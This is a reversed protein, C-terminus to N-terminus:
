TRLTYTFDERADEPHSLPIPPKGIPNDLWASAVKQYYTITQKILDNAYYDTSTMFGNPDVECIVQNKANYFQYSHADKVSAPPRVENFDASRKASRVPTHYLTTKVARGGVDRLTETVWGDPDIEGIVLNDGDFYTSQWRDRTPDIVRPLPQKNKLVTLEHETLREAYHVTGILRNASDYMSEICYNEEDVAFRTRQSQDFFLYAYRTDTAQCLKLVKNYIAWIDPLDSPDAGLDITQTPRVTSQYNHTRDYITLTVLQTASISLIPNKALNWFNYLRRGDPLNTLIPWESDLYDYQTLRTQTIAGEMVTQQESILVDNENRQSVEIRTQAGNHITVTHKLGDYAHDTTAGLFDTITSIRELGDYRRSETVVNNQQLRVSHMLWNGFDDPSFREFSAHENDIGDGKEDIDAYRTISVIQGRDNYTFESLTIAQPDQAKAWDVMENISPATAASTFLNALYCRTSSVFGINDVCHETVRKEPSIIFRLVVSEESYANLRPEYVFRTALPTTDNPNLYVNKSTCQPTSLYADYNFMTVQGDPQHHEKLLGFADEHVFREIGGGLHTITQVQGTKAYSYQTEDVESIISPPGQVKTVKILRGQDDLHLTACSGEQSVISVQGPSEYVFTSCISDSLDLLGSIVRQVKEHGRGGEYFLSLCTSDTQNIAFLLPGNGIYTYTINYGQRLYLSGSIDTRLLRGLEDFLYSVLAVERGSTIQYLTQCLGRSRMEYRIGSPCRVATLKFQDYEYYTVRGKADRHSRLLGNTDYYDTERTGPHYREWLSRDYHYILYPTGNNHGPAVYYLPASEKQLYRTEHGDSELLIAETGFPRTTEPLKVLRSAVCFQWINEPKSAQLNYVYGFHLPGNQEMVTLTYDHVVLNGTSINAYLKIAAAGCGGGPQIAGIQTLSSYSTGLGAGAIITFPQKYPM